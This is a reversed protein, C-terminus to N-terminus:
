CMQILSFISSLTIQVTETGHFLEVDIATVCPM